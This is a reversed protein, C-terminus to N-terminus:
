DGISYESGHSINIYTIEPPVLFRAGVKTTGLGVNTYVPFSRTEHLGSVFKEGLTPLFKETMGPILLQGGHSHGSVMLDNRSSEIMDYIDPEHCILLNFVGSPVDYAKETDGYGIVFDDLGLININADEIRVSENILVKFGGKNMIDEYYWEAGGGYDRNGFVAYKGLPADISAFADAIKDPDGNYKSFDDFLDGLFLVIDPKANEIKECVKSFDDLNYRFGFHTDSIVAISVDSTVQPSVATIEKESIRHPEVYFAYVFAAATLLAAILILIAITKFFRKM